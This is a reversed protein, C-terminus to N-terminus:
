FSVALAQQIKQAKDMPHLRKHERIAEKAEETLSADDIIAHASHSDDISAQVAGNDKLKGILRASCKSDKRRDYKCKYELINCGYKEVYRM